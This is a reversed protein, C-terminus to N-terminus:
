GSAPTLPWTLRLRGGPPVQAWRDLLERVDAIARAIADDSVREVLEAALRDQGRAARDRVGQPTDPGDGWHNTVWNTVTKARRHGDTLWEAAPVGAAAGSVIRGQKQRRSDRAGAARDAEAHRGAALEAWLGDTIGFASEVALHPLDHVVHVAVRRAGMWVRDRDGAGAAKILTIEVV